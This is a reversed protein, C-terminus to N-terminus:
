ENEIGEMVRRAINGIQMIEILINEGSNVSPKFYHQTRRDIVKIAELLANRESRLKVFDNPSPQGELNECISVIDLKLDTIEARLRDEVKREGQWNVKEATLNCRQCSVWEGDYYDETVDTLEGCIPCPKLTESM